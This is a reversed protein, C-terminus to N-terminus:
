CYSGTQTILKICPTLMRDDMRDSFLMRAVSNLGAVYALWLHNNTGKGVSRPLSLRYFTM